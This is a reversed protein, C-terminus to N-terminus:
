ITVGFGTVRCFCKEHVSWGFIKWGDWRFAHAVEGVVWRLLSIWGLGIWDLGIWSAFVMVVMVVVIDVIMLSRGVFVRGGRSRRWSNAM